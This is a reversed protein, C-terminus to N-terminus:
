NWIRLFSAMFDTALFNELLKSQWLVASLIIMGYVNVKNSIRLNQVYKM